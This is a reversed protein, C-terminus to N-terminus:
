PAPSGPVLSRLLSQAQTELDAIGIMGDHIPLREGDAEIVSSTLRAEVVVVPGALPLSDALRDGLFRARAEAVGIVESIARVKGLLHTRYGPLTLRLPQDARLRPRERGPLFALVELGEARADELVSLVAAGPAVRQGARVVVAQVVGDRPARITRAEVGVRARDRQARLAGLAQKVQPDAPAQLYAVLAREFATDLTALAGVEAAAHLRAVIQGRAVREGPAVDLADITGPEHAVLERRGTFRVIASGEAYHHVRAIAAFVVAAVIAAVVLGYAARVWGPDIRIVDGRQGRQVFHMIAEQRFLDSPGRDLRDGLIVEVDVRMAMRVLHPAWGTALAELAALERATFAPRAADRVAILVAHVHGDSGAVPQIALRERGTGDPNDLAAHYLADDDARPVAVGVGARVAFGALGATVPLERADDTSAWIAGREDDCYLCRARDAGVLATAAAIAARAAGTPETEAGIARVHDDVIATFAAAVEGPPLPPLTAAAQTMLESVREAAMGRVLRYFVPLEDLAPAAGDRGALLFTVPRRGDPLRTATARALLAEGTTDALRPGVILIRAAGTALQALAAEGTEVESLGFRGAVVTRLWTRADRDADAILITLPM